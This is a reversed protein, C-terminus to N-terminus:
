LLVPEACIVAAVAALRGAIETFDPRAAVAEVLCDDVLVHLTDLRGDCPVCRALLEELLCGFARVELRELLGALESDTREYCSAAGFDGLLLGEEQLSHLMNHAYLDGHLIGRGHLHLAASAVGQVMALLAAPTFRADAQYIDRTCSDLSPPGALNIFDPDILAMVLAPIGSPHDGVR